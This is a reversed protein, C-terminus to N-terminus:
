CCVTIYEKSQPKIINNTVIVVTAVSSSNTWTLNFYLMRLFCHLNGEGLSGVRTPKEKVQPHLPAQLTANEVFLPCLEIATGIYYYYYYYDGKTKPAV